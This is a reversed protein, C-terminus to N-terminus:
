LLISGERAVRGLLIIVGPVIAVIGGVNILELWGICSDM